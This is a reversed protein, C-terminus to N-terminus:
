KKFELAFDKLCWSGWSDAEKQFKGWAEDLVKINSSSVLPKDIFEFHNFQPVPLFSHGSRSIMCGDVFNAVQCIVKHTDWLHGLTILAEGAKDYERSDPTASHAIYKTVYLKINASTDEIRKMLYDFIEVRIVDSSTRQDASVGCLEDIEEHRLKVLESDLNRPVFFAKKGIKSQELGYELQKNSITKYDYELGEVAFLNERTMLSVNNKMDKLLSILSFIGKKSHRLEYATDTLRRIALFQSDFFCEDIFHHLMGNVERQGKANLSIIGRSENIVKFVAANWVMEYIQKFIANRDEGSLCRIWLKRKSKFKELIVNDM